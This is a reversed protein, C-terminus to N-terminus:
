PSVQKLVCELRSMAGDSPPLGMRLYHANWDIDKYAQTGAELAPGSVAWVGLLDQMAKHVSTPAVLAGLRLGAMGYFKGFSRLLILGDMGGSSALSSAPDLDAYAEDM